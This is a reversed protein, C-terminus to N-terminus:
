EYIPTCVGRSANRREGLKFRASVIKGAEIEYIALVDMEGLGDPFNRTVLEQDVVLNGVVTRHVLRGHLDPEKFREMHRERIQAAGDALLESPFIYYQCDDAWWQMFRDIDKANYADLQEQVPRVIDAQNM